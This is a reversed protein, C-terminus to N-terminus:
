SKLEEFANIVKLSLYDCTIRLNIEEPALFSVRIIITIILYVCVREMYFRNSLALVFVLSGIFLNM